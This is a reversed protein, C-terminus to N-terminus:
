GSTTRPKHSNHGQKKIEGYHDGEKSLVILCKQHLRAEVMGDPGDKFIRWPMIDDETIVFGCYSCICSPDGQDPSKEFWALENLYKEDFLIPIQGDEM